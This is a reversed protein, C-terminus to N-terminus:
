RWRTTTSVHEPGVAHAPGYSLYQAKLTDRLRRFVRPVGCGECMPRNGAVRDYACWQPSSQPGGTLGVALGYIIHEVIFRAEATACTSFVPDALPIVVNQMTVM